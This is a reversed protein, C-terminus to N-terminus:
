GLLFPRLEQEEEDRGSEREEERVRGKSPRPYTPAAPTLPGRLLRGGVQLCCGSTGSGLPQAGVVDRSAPSLAWSTQPGLVPSPVPSSSPLLILPVRAPLPLSGPPCLLCLHLLALFVYGHSPSAPSAPHGPVQPLAYSLLPSKWLLLGAPLPYVRASPSVSPLPVLAWFVVMQQQCEIKGERFARVEQRRWKKGRLTGALTLQASSHSFM